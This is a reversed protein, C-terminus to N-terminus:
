VHSRLGMALKGLQGVKHQLRNKPQRTSWSTHRLAPDVVLGNGPNAAGYRCPILRAARGSWKRQTHQRVPPTLRRSEKVVNTKQHTAFFVDAVVVRESSRGDSADEAETRDSETQRHPSKSACFSVGSSDLTEITACPSNAYRRVVINRTTKRRYAM